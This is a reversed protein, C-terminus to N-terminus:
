KLANEKSNGAQQSDKGDKENTSDERKAAAKALLIFDFDTKTDPLFM